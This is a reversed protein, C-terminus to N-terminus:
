SVGAAAALRSFAKNDKSGIFGEAQELLTVLDNRRVMILGAHDPMVAIGGRRGLKRNIYGKMHLRNLVYYVSSTSALGCAAGSERTTPAFLNEESYDRIFRFVKNETHTLVEPDQGNVAFESM